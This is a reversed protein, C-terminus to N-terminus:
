LIVVLSRFSVTQLAKSRRTFVLASTVHGDAEQRTKDHCYRCHDYDDRDPGAMLLSLTMRSLIHPGLILILRITAVIVSKFSEFFKAMFPSKPQQHYDNGCISTCVYILLISWLTEADGM